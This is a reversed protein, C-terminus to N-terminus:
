DSFESYEATENADDPRDEPEILHARDALSDKPIKRKKYFNPVEQKVIVVSATARRDIFSEAFATLAADKKKQLISLATVGRGDKEKFDAGQEKFYSLAQLCGEEAALTLPTVGNKDKIDWSMGAKHLISVVKYSCQASAMHLLSWGKKGYSKIDKNLKQDGLLLTLMEPNNQEVSLSHIDFDKKPDVDFKLKHEKAYKVFALRNYKVLLEGVMFHRDEVKIGLGLTGGSALFHEFGSQDNKIISLLAEDSLNRSVSNSSNQFYFFSSLSVCCTLSLGLIVRNKNVILEKM